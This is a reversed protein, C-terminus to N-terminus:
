KGIRGMWQNWAEIAEAETPRRPGEIYGNDEDNVAVVWRDGRGGVTMGTEPELTPCLPCPLIDTM